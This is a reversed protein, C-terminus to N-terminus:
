YTRSPRTDASGGGRGEYNGGTSGPPRDAATKGPLADDEASPHGWTGPVDSRGPIGKRWIGAENHLKQLFSNEDGTELQKDCGSDRVSRTRRARDENEFLKYLLM